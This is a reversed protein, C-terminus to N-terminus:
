NPWWCKRQMLDARRQCVVILLAAAPASLLGGSLFATPLASIMANYVGIFVSALIAVSLPTKGGKLLFLDIARCVAGAVVSFLAVGFYSFDAWADGIFMATTTSGTTGRWLQSVTEFSPVYHHGLLFALFRINAGWMYPIRAPFAGFFELLAENSIDFARYYLFDLAEWYDVEPVAIRIIPVFVLVSAILSGLAVKWTLRNNSVLYFVLVLQILFLAIPGKSLTELKGILTFGFLFTAAVLLSCWRQRWGLLAGWIILMPGISGLLIRYLYHQSGGFKQRYAIKDFEDGSVALYGMLVSLHHEDFSVFLMFILSLIVALMVCVSHSEGAELRQENWAAVAREVERVRAPAIYNVAETGAIIGAFLLAISLNMSMVISNFDDVRAIHRYMISQPGRFLMFVLYAPGHVVLLFAFLISSSTIYLGMRYVVYIAACYMSLAAIIYTAPLIM